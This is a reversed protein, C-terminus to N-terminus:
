PSPLQELRTNTPVSGGINTLIVDRDNDSGTYKVMGDLNTDSALYGNAINTPVTGGVAALIPDRDNEAGTYKLREDTVVNGSWLTRFVGVSKRPEQGWIATASASMDVFIPAAGLALPLETMCGLHNRHRVAVHYSGAQTALRMPGGDSATVQGNRRVLASRTAVVTAPSQADRLEVMVWDVVAEPGTIALLAPDITEGGGDSAHQFGLSTYPEVAPILGAIRLQDGMLGAGVDFPGDLLVRMDLVVGDTVTAVVETRASEVTITPTRVEWDYLYYYYGPGATSGTISGVTGIAYPYSVGENDRHLALTIETNDDFATIRLGTGSPVQFNLDVRQTGSQVYVYREDILNGVNDVLVFHRDGNGTAYVKVSVLEFPEFADFILLQRATSSSQSGSLNTKAGMMEQGGHVTRTSAYYSTTEELVPTDYMGGMAIPSGGDPTNYWLIDTGQGTASLQVSAPGVAEAGQGVPPPLAPLSTVQVPPSVLSGCPATVTVSYSGPQDVEITRTTAGNSWLYSYGPTATLSITSGPAVRLGDPALISAAGGSGVPRQQTLTFPIATWNNEDNEEVFSNNPDVEAVIWYDGNCLGDMMNIWMMDLSESYVDTRGVSIGQENTGCGYGGNMGINPFNSNSNLAIGGGYEQSTRCHGHYTSTSCWGYDMLCFGVKAGTALVPWERPDSIGPQALRLTMTTWDDVHYHNHGAGSHYTMSGATRENRLMQNGQKRYIQQFIIQKPQQGNPCTFGTQGGSVAFTDPGCIFYRNGFEDATRVEMNGYGINPTSGTVRLRGANSGSQPYESPGSAYNELAVWSITLDPLLDCTTLGPTRCVCTTANTQSCQAIVGTTPIFGMVLVSLIRNRLEM